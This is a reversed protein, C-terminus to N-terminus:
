KGIEDLSTEVAYVLKNFIMDCFAYFEQDDENLPRNQGMISRAIQAVTIGIENSRFFFENRAFQILAPKAAEAVRRLDHRNLFMHAEDRTM